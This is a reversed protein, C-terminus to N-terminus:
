QAAVQHRLVSRKYWDTRSTEAEPMEFKVQYCYGHKDDKIALVTGEHLSYDHTVKDGVQIGDKSNM